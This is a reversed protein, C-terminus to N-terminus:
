CDSHSQCPSPKAIFTDAQVSLRFSPHLGHTYKLSGLSQDEYLELAQFMMKIYVPSEWM